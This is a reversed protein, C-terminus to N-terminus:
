TNTDLSQRFLLRDIAELTLVANIERVYNKRGNTHDKALQELFAPNWLHSQRIRSDTLRERLYGALNSRFWRRYHLYRHSGLLWRRADLRSLSSDLLYSDFSSLWHPMGDNCRYDLKFATRYWFSRVLSSLWSGPVLGQDTPIRDLGSLSQRILHMAPASSGRLREPARFALAVVDNDLYPTRTSIQSLAARGVGFLLWPIERFAAFSVPPTQAETLFVTEDSLRRRLQPDFLDISLGLPKFTTMGRMIESGFNGTLRIPALDRALRNLYIEHTGCIGFCGDTMYVTRDTLSAFDSFFDHGIRLVHHPIRSASAVRAALRVDLTDGDLGAFTYSVLRHTTEPRCTMIMRTDLGATLSIGIESDSQFYRPLIRNFTEHFQSEFSSATLPAQSEWSAPVFYRQKECMGGSFRWVSAGPLLKVDRFLTKWELTCGYRLFQSLGDEDFARLEPIIRLLAKAESAFFFGERGEHYYIREMGYRDNFLFAKRQRQDILLGSFLGNLDEFFLNGREEYLHILWAADNDGELQHGRRKLQARIHPDSFCEGSFLLAIDAQESVVPQRESFSDQLAVWGGFVGLEPASYSGSAYFKEHQMCAVMEEVLRRCVDPGRRSILGAIGPM